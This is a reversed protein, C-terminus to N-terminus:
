MPIYVKDKKSLTSILKLKVSNTHSILVSKMWMQSKMLTTTVRMRLIVAVKGMPTLELLDVPQWNGKM